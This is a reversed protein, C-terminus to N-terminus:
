KGHGSLKENAYIAIIHHNHKRARPILIRSLHSNPNSTDVSAGLDKLAALSHLEATSLTSLTRRNPNASVLTGCLALLALPLRVIMDLRWSLAQLALAFEARRM